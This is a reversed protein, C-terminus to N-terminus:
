VYMKQDPCNFGTKKLYFDVIEEPIQTSFTLLLSQESHVAKSAITPRIDV